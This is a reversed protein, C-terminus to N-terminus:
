RDGEQGFAWLPSVFLILQERLAACRHRHKTIDSRDATNPTWRSARRMINEAAQLERCTAELLACPLPPTYGRSEPPPLWNLPRTDTRELFEALRLIARTLEEIQLTKTEESDTMIRHGAM